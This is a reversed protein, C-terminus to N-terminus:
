KAQKMWCRGDPAPRSEALYNKFDEVERDNQPPGAAAVAIGTKREFEAALSTRGACRYFDAAMSYGSAQDTARHRAGGPDGYKRDCADEVEVITVEARAAGEYDVPKKSFPINVDARSGAATWGRGECQYFPGLDAIAAVRVNGVFLGAAFLMALLKM